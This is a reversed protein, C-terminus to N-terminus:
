PIFLYAPWVLINCSPCPFAKENNVWYREKGYKNLKGGERRPKIAQWHLNLACSSCVIWHGCPFQIIERPKEYCILCRFLDYNNDEDFQNPQGGWWWWWSGKLKVPWSLKRCYPCVYAKYVSIKFKKSTGNVYPNPHKRRYQWHQQTACIKCLLCHGCPFQGMERNRIGCRICLLSDIENVEESIENLEETRYQAWLNTCATALQCCALLTKWITELWDM